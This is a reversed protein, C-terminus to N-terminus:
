QRKVVGLGNQTKQDCDYRKIPLRMVLPRFIESPIVSGIRSVLNVGAHTWAGGHVKIWSSM